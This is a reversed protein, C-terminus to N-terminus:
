HEHEHDGERHSYWKVLLYIVICIFLVVTASSTGLLVQSALVLALRWQMAAMAPRYADTNAEKLDLSHPFLPNMRLTIEHEGGGTEFTHTSWIFSLFRSMMRLSM